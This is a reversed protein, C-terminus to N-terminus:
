AIILTALVTQCAGGITYPAFSIGLLVTVGTDSVVIENIIIWLALRLPTNRTHTFLSAILPLAQWRCRAGLVIVMLKWLTSSRWPIMRPSICRSILGSCSKVIIDSIPSIAVKTVGAVLVTISTILRILCIAHRAGLSTVLPLLLWLETLFVTWVTDIPWPPNAFIDM